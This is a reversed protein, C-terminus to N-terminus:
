NHCLYIFNGSKMEKSLRRDSKTFIDLEDSAKKLHLTNLSEKLEDTNQPGLLGHKELIEFIAFGSTAHELQAVPVRGDKLLFKLKELDESFVVFFSTM